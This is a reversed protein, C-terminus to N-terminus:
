GMRASIFAWVTEYVTEREIDQTLVHDSKELTKTVLDVSSVREAVLAMNDYPVTQDNKSYVLLLPVTIEGLRARVDDMLAYLQWISETPMVSYDVKGVEERGMERQIELVRAHLDGPWDEKPYYPRFYKLLSTLRMPRNDLRLPAALAIVGDVLGTEGLRLSLVGGMSLGAAFVKRCRSRLLAVGDLVSEYWDTWHQRRMIAPDTGHGALRPGYITLGRENLYEGFWRMEDPSGTWGHTCLCGVDGGDLLFPEAGRRIFLDDTNM